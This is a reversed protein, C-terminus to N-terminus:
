IRDPTHQESQRGRGGPSPYTAVSASEFEGWNQCRPSTISSGNRLISCKPKNAGRKFISCGEDSLHPMLSGERDRIQGREVRKTRSRRRQKWSRESRPMFIRKNRWHRADSPSKTHRVEAPGISAGPRPGDCQHQLNVPQTPGIPSM